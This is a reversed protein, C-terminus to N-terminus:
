GKVSGITLGSIFYKQFYPYSMAIPLVVVMVIAMRTSEAPLKLRSSDPSMFQANKTLFDMNREISILVYQLPYMDQHDSGIYLMTSFWDNWYGISLMLGVTALAPLSIPLIMQFFILLQRAGDIKASEIISDPVTTQFYTRLIICNFSSVAVPLLLALYSNQLGLMRTNILYAAVLGGGFLMPIFILMTFFRRLKFTPRSLVYGMTSTLFLGTITGIVTIGISVLFATGVSSRERWIYKYADLSWELPMFSYGIKQISANSSFSIIAVFVLPVVCVLALLIFFLSFFFNTPAAIRNFRAVADLDMKQKRM